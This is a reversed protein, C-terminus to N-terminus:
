VVLTWTHFLSIPANVGACVTVPNAFTISDSPFKPARPLEPPAAQFLCVPVHLTTVLIWPALEISLDFPFKQMTPLPLAVAHLRTVPVHVVFFIEIGPGIEVDFPLKIIRPEDRIMAQLWFVPRHVSIVGDDPNTPVTLAPFQIVAPGPTRRVPNIEVRAFRDCDTRLILDDSPLPM